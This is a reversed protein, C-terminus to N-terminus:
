PDAPSSSHFVATIRFSFDEGFAFIPYGNRDLTLTVPANEGEVSLTFRDGEALRQVSQLSQASSPNLLLIRTPRTLGWLLPSNADCTVSIGDREVTCSGDPLPFVTIGNLSDPAHYAITVWSGNECYIDCAVAKGGRDGEIRLTLIERLYPFDEAARPACSVLAQFLVSLLTFLWLKQLIKM